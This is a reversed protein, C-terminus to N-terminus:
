RRPNERRFLPSFRERAYPVHRSIWWRVNEEHGSDQLNMAEIGIATGADVYSQFRGFSATIGASKGYVVYVLTGQMPNKENIPLDDSALYGYDRMEYVLAKMRKLATCIDELDRMEFFSSADTSRIRFLPQRDKTRSLHVRIYGEPIISIQEM